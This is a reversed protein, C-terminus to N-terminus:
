QKQYIVSDKILRKTESIIEEPTKFMTKALFNGSYNGGKSQIEEGIAKITKAKMEASAVAVVFVNKNKFGSRNMFETIAPTFRMGWTPSCIIILDYADLDVNDPKITTKKKTKVDLMGVVFGKVGSRDKM